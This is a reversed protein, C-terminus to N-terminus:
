FKPVSFNNPVAYIENVLKDAQRIEAGDLSFIKYGFKQLQEFCRKHQSGHLAVFLIVNNKKLTKEAGKLVSFEGGEVDIKILHPALILKNEMLYDLSVAPLLYDAGDKKEGIRGTSNNHGMQFNVIGNKDSVATQVFSVNKVYNIKIHRLLNNANEAFPEFSYVRGDDGILRSFALTYFGAQSGIDYVIMGPKIFKKLAKQKELEYIGLWCGHNFTGTIWKM